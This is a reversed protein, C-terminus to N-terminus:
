KESQKLQNYQEVHRQLASKATALKEPQTGNVFAEFISEACYEGNTPCSVLTDAGFLHTSLAGMFPFYTVISDCAYGTKPGGEPHIPICGVDLSLSAEGPTDYVAYRSTGGVKAKLQSTIKQEDANGTNEELFM